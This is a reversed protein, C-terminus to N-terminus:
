SLEKEIREVRVREADALRYALGLARRAIEIADNLDTSVRENRLTGTRLELVRLEQQVSDLYAARSM